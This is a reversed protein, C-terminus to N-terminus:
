WFRYIQREADAHVLVGGLQERILRDRALQLELPYDGFRTTATHAVFYKYHGAELLARLSSASASDVPDGMHKPDALHRRLPSDYLALERVPLRSQRAFSVPKHHLTEEWQGLVHDTYVAIEPERDDRIVGLPEASAPAGSRFPVSVTELNVLILAASLLWLGHRRAGLRAAGFAALVALSLQTMLLFRVPMGGRGFLPVLEKFLLFPMPVRVRVPAGYATLQLFPTIALLVLLLIRLDRGAPSRPLVVLGLATVLLVAVFPPHIELGGIQLYVGLSLVAFALLLNRHKHADPVKARLALIALIPATVGVFCGGEADNTIERQMRNITLRIVAPLKGNWYSLHDPCFPALLDAPYESDGHHYSIPAPHMHTALPLLVPLSGLLAAGAVWLARRVDTRAFLRPSFLRDDDWIRLLLWGGAFLALYYLYYFDCAAVYGASLGALVVYRRKGSELARFYGLLFLPMGELAALNVHAISHALHYRSFNFVCAGILACLDRTWTPLSLVRLRDHCLWFMSMGTLVFTGLVVLNYAAIPGCFSLLLAGLVTKAPALTHWYLEAGLPHHLAESFFPSKGALLSRRMWDIHWMNMWPDELHGGLVETRWVRGLPWTHFLTLAATVFAIVSQRAIERGRIM